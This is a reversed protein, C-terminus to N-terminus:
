PSFIVAKLQNTIRLQKNSDWNRARIRNLQQVGTLQLCGSPPVVLSSSEAFMGMESGARHTRSRTPAVRVAQLAQPLLSCGLSNLRSKLSLHPAVFRWGSTSRTPPCPSVLCGGGRAGSDNWPCSASVM